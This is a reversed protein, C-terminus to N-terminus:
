GDDRHHRITRGEILFVTDEAINTALDAVRELDGSAGVCCIKVLGRSSRVSAYM